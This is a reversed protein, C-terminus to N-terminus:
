WLDDLFVLTVDMKNWFSSSYEDFGDDWIQRLEEVVLCFMWGVLAFEPGTLNAAPLSNLVIYCYLAILFVHFAAHM